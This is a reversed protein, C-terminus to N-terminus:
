AAKKDKSVHPTGFVLRDEFMTNFKAGLAKSLDSFETMKMARFKEGMIHNANFTSFDSNDNIYEYGIAMRSRYVKFKDSAATIFNSINNEIHYNYYLSFSMMGIFEKQEESLNSIMTYNNTYCVNSHTNIFERCTEELRSNGEPFMHPLFPFEHGYKQAQEQTISRICSVPTLKSKDVKALILHTGILDYTDLPLSLEGYNERYGKFRLALVESFFDRLEKDECYDVVLENIQVFKYM